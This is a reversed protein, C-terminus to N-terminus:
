RPVVTFKVAAPRSRNGSGDIATVSAVYSAPKLRAGGVRGSFPIAVQGPGRGTRLIVGPVNIRSRGKKGSFSVVLTSREDVTLKFETGAPAKKKAAAILATSGRGARFRPHSSKLGSVRPPTRDPPAGSDGAAAAITVTRQESSTNGAGDRATVTATYTGAAGYSHSVLGGRAHSGDGFDWSVTVPSLTDTAAAAFSLPTGPLAGGPAAVDTISPPVADRESLFIRDGAQSSADDAGWAVLADGDSGAAAAATDFAGARVRERPGSVEELAGFPQGPSAFSAQVRSSASDSSNDIRRDSVILASGDPGVDLDHIGTSSARGTLRQQDTTPADAPLKAGAVGIIFENTPVLSWGLVLSGSRDLAAHLDFPFGATAITRVAGPATVSQTAVQLGFERLWVVDVRGAASVLHPEVSDARSDLRSVADVDVPAGFQVPNVSNVPRTARRILTTSTRDNRGSAIRREWAVHLSGGGVAITPDDVELDTQTNRDFSAADLAGGAGTGPLAEIANAGAPLRFARIETNLLNGAFEELGVAVYVDGGQIAVSALGSHGVFQTGPLNFAAAEVFRSSGPTRRAVHLKGSSFWAIAASDDGGTALTPDFAASDGLLQVPGLGGGAPAIRTAIGETETGTAGQKRQEWAVVRDGSPTLGVMPGTAQRDPPSLPEGTVWGVAGASPATVAAALLALVPIATRPLLRM